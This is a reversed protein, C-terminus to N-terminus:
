PAPSPPSPMPPRPAPSSCARAMRAPKPVSSPVPVRL